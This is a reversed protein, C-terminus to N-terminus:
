EGSVSTLRCRAIRAGEGVAIRATATTALVARKLGDYTLKRYSVALILAGLAGIASAETPTALGALISGLTAAILGLLPLVGLLVEGFIRGAGYIREEKPVPPGLKPNFFARGLLYALYLGALLFGPGFASAYLDALMLVAEPAGFFPGLPLLAACAAEADRRAEELDGAAVNSHAMAQQAGPLDWDEFGEGGAETVELCRRAHWLAPEARGLTAYVRACQWEGRAGNAPAGVQRWLACSVHASHIMEDIQEPTRERLEFLEWTRNFFEVALARRVDKGPAV